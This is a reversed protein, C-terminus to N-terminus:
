VEKHKNRRYSARGVLLYSYKLKHVLCVSNVKVTDGLLSVYAVVYKM